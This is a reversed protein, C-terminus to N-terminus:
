RAIGARREAFSGALPLKWLRGRYAQFLCLGWLILWAGASIASLWLMTRFATPSVVLMLFALVLLLLATGGLAGLGVLSQWAHFKVFRSTRETGILLAGSFPGALYALAAATQPSLGTSSPAPEHRRRSAASASGIRSQPPGSIPPAHRVPAGPAAPATTARPVFEVNGDHRPVTVIHFPTALVSATVAQPAPRREDVLLVLSAGERQRGAITIEYGSSPREGAFVAAVMRSDFDVAPEASGPGAHAAWLARWEVPNRAIIGQPELIRSGDGHAITDIDGATM